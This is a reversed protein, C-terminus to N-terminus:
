GFEVTVWTKSLTVDMKTWIDGHQGCARGSACRSSCAQSSQNYLYKSCTTVLTTYVKKQDVDSFPEQPHKFQGEFKTYPVPARNHM